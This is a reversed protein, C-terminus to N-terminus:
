DTYPGYTIAHESGDGGKYEGAVAAAHPVGTPPPFIGDHGFQVSGAVTPWGFYTATSNHNANFPVTGSALIELEHPNAKLYLPTGGSSMSLSVHYNGSDLGVIWKFQNGHRVQMNLAPDMLGITAQTNLVRAVRIKSTSLNVGM